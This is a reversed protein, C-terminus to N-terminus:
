NHCRPIWNGSWPNFRPGRCQFCPTKAVLGDPFDRVEKSRIPSLQRSAEAGLGVMGMAGLNQLLTEALGM